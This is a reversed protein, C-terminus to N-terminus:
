RSGLLLVSCPTKPLSHLFTHCSHPNLPLPWMLHGWKWLQGKLRLEKKHLCNWLVLLCWALDKSLSCVGLRSQTPCAATQGTHTDDMVLSNVTLIEGIDMWIIHRAYDGTSQMYRLLMHVGVCFKVDGQRIQKSLRSCLATVPMNVLVTSQELNLLHTKISSASTSFRGGCWGRAPHWSLSPVVKQSLQKKWTTAASCCFM